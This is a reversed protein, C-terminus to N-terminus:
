PAGNDDIRLGAADAPSAASFAVPMLLLVLIVWRSM